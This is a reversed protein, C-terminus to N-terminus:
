LFNPKYTLMICAWNVTRKNLGKKVSYLKKSTFLTSYFFGLQLNEQLTVKTSLDIETGLYYNDSAIDTQDEGMYLKNNLSFVHGAMTFALNESHTYKFESKIDTIGENPIEKFYDISGLYRHNSGYLNNFVRVTNSVSDPLESGSYYDLGIQGSINKQVLYSISSSFFSANVDYGKFNKGLQKYYVGKLSLNDINIEINSGATYRFNNKNTNVDTKDDSIFIGSYNFNKNIAHKLWVLTLSNYTNPINNFSKSGRAHGLHLNFNPNTYKALVMAHTTGSNNWNTNSLLSEDDYCVEQFGIKTSFKDTFHYSIWGEHLQLGTKNLPTEEEAWNRVDQFSFATKVKNNSYNLSLRTRQSFLLTSAITEYSKDLLEVRPRIEGNIEAQCISDIFFSLLCLVIFGRIM